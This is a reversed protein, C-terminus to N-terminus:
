VKDKTFSAYIQRCISQILFFFFYVIFLYIYAIHMLKHYQPVYYVYKPVIVSIYTTIGSLVVSFIWIIRNTRDFLKKYLIFPINIIFSIIAHRNKIIKNLLYTIGFGAIILLFLCYLFYLNLTISM